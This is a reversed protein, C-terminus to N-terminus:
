GRVALINVLANASALLTFDALNVEVGPICIVVPESTAAIDIGRDSGSMASNGVSVVVTNAPDAQISLYRARPACTPEVTRLATLLNLKTAAALSITKLTATTQVPM